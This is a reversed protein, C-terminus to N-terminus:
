TALHQNVEWTDSGALLAALDGPGSKDRAAAIQGAM